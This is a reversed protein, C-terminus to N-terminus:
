NGIKKLPVYFTVQTGHGRESQVDCRGGIEELRKRMNLVGNLRIQPQGSNVAPDLLMAADLGCGNDIIGVVVAAPKLAFSIRVETAASHKLVNHLAEKISLFLNHRVEAAVPWAPIDFPFDLRCRINSDNLLEHILKGLYNALSDLTDHQPDVAWVIEDMKRTLQRATTSIQELSKERQPPDDVGQRALQSLFDIRTLSAGLDDHIDKAIRTREREVARQRELLELKRRMRRRTAYWAGVSALSIIALFVLLGFWTTQWFHPLLTFALTAGTENWMGDNKCAIVRFTYNGPPPYPYDATRKTGADVWDADLPDLRHKFRVKEPAAFNFGTYQFELRHRGPPIELRSPAALNTMMQNDVLMSEILV